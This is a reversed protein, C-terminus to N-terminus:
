KAVEKEKRFCCHPSHRMDAPLRAQARCHVCICILANPKVLRIRAAETLSYDYPDCKTGSM